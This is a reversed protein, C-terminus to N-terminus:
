KAVKWIAVNSAQGSTTWYIATGDDAFNSASAQGRTIITPTSCDSLPCKILADEPVASNARLAGYFTTQDIVGGGIYGATFVPPTGSLIGNPLPASFVDYTLNDPFYNSM